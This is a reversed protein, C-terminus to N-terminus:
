NLALAPTSSGSTADVSDASVPAPDRRGAKLRRFRRRCPKLGSCIRRAPKSAPAATPAAVTEATGLLGAAKLRARSEETAKAKSPRRRRLRLRVHM